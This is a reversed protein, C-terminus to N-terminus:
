GLARDLEERLVRWALERTRKDTDWAHFAEAVHADEIRKSRAEAILSDFLAELTARIEPEQKLHDQRLTALHSLMGKQM